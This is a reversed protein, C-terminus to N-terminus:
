WEQNCSYVFLIIIIIIIIIIYFYVTNPHFGITYHENWTTHFNLGITSFNL